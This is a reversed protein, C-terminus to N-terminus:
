DDPSQDEVLRPNDAVADSGVAEAEHEHPKSEVEAFFTGLRDILDRDDPNAVAFDQLHDAVDAFSVREDGRRERLREVGAIPQREHARPGDKRQDM